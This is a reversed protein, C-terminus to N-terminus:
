ASAEQVYSFDAFYRCVEVGNVALDFHPQPHAELESVIGGAQLVHLENCRTAEKRSHHLAAANCRTPENGFKSRRLGRFQGWRAM